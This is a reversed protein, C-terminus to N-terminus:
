LLAELGYLLGVHGEIARLALLIGPLYCRRSYAEHRLVIGEDDTGFVVDQQAHIGPLRASHVRVGAVDLGRATDGSPTTPSRAGQAALREATRRATGSPADVKGTHHREYVEVDPFHQALEDAFKQLLIMGLAFNPAVLVARDAMRAKADLAERDAADLGTTGLLIHVGADLATEANGRAAHPATFDILVQANSTRLVGGLDDDVEIEAVVQVDEQEHLAPVLARGMRGRAGAFAVRIM